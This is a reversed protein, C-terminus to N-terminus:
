SLFFDFVILSTLIPFFTNVTIARTIIPTTKLKIKPGDRIEFGASSVPVHQLLSKCSQTTPDTTM